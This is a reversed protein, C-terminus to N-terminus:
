CRGSSAGLTSVWWASAWVWPAYLLLAVAFVAKAGAADFALLLTAIVSVGWLLVGLWALPRPYARTAFLAPLLLIGAATYLGYAAIDTLAQALTEVNSYTLATSAAPADHYRAALDPILALNVVIGVLDVAAALLALGVALDRWQRLGGLNRALAYFGWAFTTTVVFWFAWGAQWRAAHDAIWQSRGALSGGATLSGHKLILGGDIGALLDVAGALVLAAVDLRRGAEDRARV